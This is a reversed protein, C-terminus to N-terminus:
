LWWDSNSKPTTGHLPCRHWFCGHVYVAVKSRRFVIDARRRTDPVPRADVRYRLGQRFLARRLALEKPTDRQRTAAMRTRVAPSSAHPTETRQRAGGVILRPWSSAPSSLRHGDDPLSARCQRDDDVVGHASGNGM